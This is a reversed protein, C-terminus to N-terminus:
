CEKLTLNIVQELVRISGDPRHFKIESIIVRDGAKLKQFQQITESDFRGGSCKKEFITENNRVITITYADVAIRLDFDFNDMALIIGEQRKFLSLCLVDGWKMGSIRAVPDPIYKCRFEQTGVKVKGGGAKKFVNVAVKGPKLVTIVYHCPISKEETINCGEAEISIDKCDTNEVAITVPNPVGIYFVNMKDLAVAVQQASLKVSFLISLLFIYYRM